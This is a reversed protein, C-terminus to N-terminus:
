LVSKAFRLEQKLRCGEVHWQGDGTEPDIRYALIVYVPAELTGNGDTWLTSAKEHGHEQYVRVPEVLQWDADAGARRILRYAEGHRFEQLAERRDQDRLYFEDLPMSGLHRDLYARQLEMAMEAEDQAVLGIYQRAFYAAQSGLTQAKMWPLFFGCFGFGIALVLGIKAPLTGVPKNGPAPRLAVLGCIVAALPLLLLPRGLLALASLLGFLLCLFGSVRVPAAAQEDLEYGRDAGMQPVTDTLDSTM